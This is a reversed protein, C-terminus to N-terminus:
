RLTTNPLHHEPPGNQASRCRPVPSIVPRNTSAVRGLHDAAVEVKRLGLCHRDAYILRDLNRGEVFDADIITIEEFGTRALSELVISGVSGADVVCIHTRALEAQAEIGWSDVTRALSPRRVYPPYAHPRRDAGTHRRGVRRVDTCHVPSIHGLRSEQWFRASWVGDSGMTLGLLPLGTERIFPAIIKRETDDDITSLARWGPGPHSDLVAVGAPAKLARDLVRSLYGSQLTVNGHLDRDGDDPLVVEGLM